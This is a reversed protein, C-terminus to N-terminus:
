IWLKFLRFCTFYVQIGEAAPIVDRVVSAGANYLPLILLIVVAIVSAFGDDPM